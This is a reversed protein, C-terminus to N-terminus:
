NTTEIFAENSYDSFLGEQVFARVRYYYGTDRQVTSDVHSAVNTAVAGIELFAGAVGTKREIRTEIEYISNDRWSLQVRNNEADYSATLNSPPVVDISLTTITVEESWDSQGKSGLAAMRYTYSSSAFLNEKDDFKTTNPPLAAIQSFEAASAIKRQAIFALENDSNDQWSLRVWRTGYATAQLDSPAEILKIDESTNVEESESFGYQHFARVKYYYIQGSVLGTDNTSITNAPLSQRMAYDSNEDKRWVEFGQEDASNDTWQLNVISDSLKTLILDSPKAPPAFDPLVFLDTMEDSVASNGSQDYAILYYKIKSHVYSTDISLYVAPKSGDENVPNRSVFLGNMFLEVAELNRDDSADYIVETTGTYVTDGTAPQYVKVEPASKDPPPGSTPSVCTIILSSILIVSITIYGAGIKDKIRYVFKKFQNTNMTDCLKKHFSM